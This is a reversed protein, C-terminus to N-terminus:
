LTTISYYRQVSMTVNMTSRNKDPLTGNGEFYEELVEQDQCCISEESTEM